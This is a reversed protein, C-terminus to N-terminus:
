RRNRLRNMTEQWNNTQPATSAVGQFGAEPQAFANAGQRNAARQFYESAPLGEIMAEGTRPTNSVSGSGYQSQFTTTNTPVTTNWTEGEPRSQGEVPQGSRAQGRQRWYEGLQSREQSEQPSVMGYESNISGVSGNLFDRFTRPAVNDGGATSAGSVGSQAAPARNAGQGLTRAMMDSAGQLYRGGTELDGRSNASNGGAILASTQADGGVERTRADQLQRFQSVRQNPQNLYFDTLSGFGGGPGTYSPSLGGQQAIRDAGTGNQRWSYGRIPSRVREGQRALAVNRIDRLEERTAM